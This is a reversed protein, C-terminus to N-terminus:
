RKVISVKPDKSTVAIRGTVIVTVKGERNLPPNSEPM